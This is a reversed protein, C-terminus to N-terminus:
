STSRARATQRARSEIEVDNLGHWHDPVQDTDRYPLLPRYAVPGPAAQLAAFIPRLAPWAGIPLGANIWGDEAYGRPPLPWVHGGINLLVLWANGPREIYLLQYRTADGPCWDVLVGAELDAVAKTSDSEYHANRIQRVTRRRQHRGAASDQQHQWVRGAAGVDTLSCRGLGRGGHDGPPEGCEPCMGADMRGRAVPDDYREWTV